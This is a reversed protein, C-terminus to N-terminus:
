ETSTRLYYLLSLREDEDLEFWRKGGFRDSIFQSIEEYTWGQSQVLHQICVQLDGDAVDSLQPFGTEDGRVGREPSFSLLDSGLESACLAERKMNKEIPHLEKNELTESSEVSSTDAVTEPAPFSSKEDIVGPLHYPHWLSLHKYLTQQSVRARQSIAKARATIQEPLEGAQELEDFAAKIRHQADESQQQNFSALGPRPYETDRTPTSGLPWYYNEVARAWATVRREIEHQHRCYQEYGPRSTAIRLTYDILDQGQLGEFVRGYCAITKLLSNTQGPATWGETIETDLDQRWSEVPHNRRKPKKRHNDRGIKIAHRLEDMAQHSAAQDWRWFFQALSNGQSNLDDDLLCSGSAPQLPLRHANYETFIQVGYAKINPFIELQGAKLRFGQAKLCEHLTVALNFTQVAEPLPIYFHLGGNWSSRTLVTRTIGITELAARIEAVGDPNCYDSGADIDLLAYVTDHTFRVGILTNADQWDNWLVRPRMEYQTITQWQPKATADDPLEARICKWRYRGFIDCLRQGLPDAPLPQQRPIAIVV